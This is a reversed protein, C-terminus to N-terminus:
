AAIEANDTRTFVDADIGHQTISVVQDFVAQGSAWLPSEGLALL